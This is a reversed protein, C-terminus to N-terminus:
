SIRTAVLFSGAFVTTATASSVKQAWQLTVNGPTTSNVISGVVFALTKNGAGVTGIPLTAGFAGAQNNFASNEFTTQTTGTGIAGVAGTAGAPGTLSVVLDGATNGDVFLYAFMVWTESAGIAFLLEDDDQLATSSTVTEDAVKRVVTPTNFLATVVNRMDLASIDGATNDNILAHMEALTLPM